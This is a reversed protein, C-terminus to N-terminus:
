RLLQKVPVHEQEAGGPEHRVRRHFGAVHAHGLVPQVPLQRRQVGLLGALGTVPPQEAHDAVRHVGQAPRHQRLAVAGRRPFHVILAQKGVLDPAEAQPDHVGPRRVIGPLVGAKGGEQGLAAAEAGVPLVQHDGVGDSIIVVGQGALQRLLRDAGIEPHPLQAELGIYGRGQGGSGQAQQQAQPAPPM